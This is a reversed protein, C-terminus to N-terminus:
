HRYYIGPYAQIRYLDLKEAIVGGSKTPNLTINTCVKKADETILYTSCVACLERSYSVNGAVYGRVKAFEM